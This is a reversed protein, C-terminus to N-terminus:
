KNYEAKELKSLIKVYKVWHLLHGIFLRLYAAYFRNRRFFDLRVKQAQLDEEAARRTDMRSISDNRKRYYYLKQPTIVIREAYQILLHSVYIDEHTKGEPFLEVQSFAELVERNYLKNWVVTEIRKYRGHWGRLMKESTLVDNSLAKGAALQDLDRTYACAAIQANNELLLGYLSEIFTYSIKDDSDIFAIYTGKSERYGVNRAASLGQNYQHIVRIRCDKLAYEECLKPCNDSSGDDVLIIELNQYTQSCISDICECLYDEVNYIPVIISILDMARHGRGNAGM